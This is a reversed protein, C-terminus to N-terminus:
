PFRFHRYGGNVLERYTKCHHGVKRVASEPNTDNPFLEKAIAVNTMGKARMDGAKLIIDFDTMNIKPVKANAITKIYSKYRTDILGTIARKLSEISNVNEFDISVELESGITHANLISSGVSRNLIDLDDQTLEDFSKNVDIISDPSFKEIYNLFLRPVKIITLESEGHKFGEYFEGILFNKSLKRCLKLVSPNSDRFLGQAKESAKRYNPDRRMFEWRYRLWKEKREDVEM